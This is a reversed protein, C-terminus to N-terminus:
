AVGALHYRTGGEGKLTVIAHGQKRLGTLAARTSHPLWGTAAVLEALSAGGNARLLDLVLAQKTPPSAAAVAEEVPPVDDSLPANSAEEAAIAARGADTLVVGIRRAEEERWAAAADAVDIEQALTRKILTIIAKRIRTAQDGLSGPPPLLSGDARQCASALLVLQMETLRPM